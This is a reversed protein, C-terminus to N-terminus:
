IQRVTVYEFIASSGPEGEHYLGPRAVRDWRVLDRMTSDTLGHDVTAWSRGDTSWAFSGPVGGAVTMRLHLADAPSAVDVATQEKGDRVIKVMLRDGAVGYVLYNNNDGYMTIGKLSGNKNNVATTMTYDATVPRLCLAEGGDYGPKPSGSLHLRGSVARAEVSAYPYNWTWEPRLREGAFSDHFDAVPEQVCGASPMPQAVSACEGGAFRPWGDDGMTMEMLYPQRGLYFDDGEAYAHCLYYMRGDPTTTLTGHGISKVDDSGHLIPNRECKEYPGRLTKSRAVSVAYDSGTGCCNRISYLLYYYGGMKFWHQGEMGQREDDVLLSFPEGDLRLGDPTLRAALLEIPRKDLGYAKWSIYLDGNDEIVFADIAETGYEVVPGHDTFVDTPSDATAVGIYSTGAKNRATYYVYVKGNHRYWEPAWFSSTTWEPQTEFVHGTQKWNVLDKSEFVPYFPAWESSTGTAYYTDDIRIISPDAMDGHIVPNTFYTDTDRAVAASACIAMCSIAILMKTM